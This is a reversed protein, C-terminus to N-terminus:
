RPRAYLDLIGGLRLAELPARTAASIWGSRDSRDTVHTEWALVEFGADRVLASLTAPTFFWLHHLAGYHKWSQSKLGMRSQLSKLRISLGGINPVGILLVGDDAVLSRARRLEVLPNQTHELVHNFRIAAFREEAFAIDSLKGEWVKADTQRVVDTVAVDTGAVEWGREEAFKLFAGAGCGVDLVSAPSAIVSRELRSLQRMFIRARTGDVNHHDDPHYSENYVADALQEFLPRPHQFELRCAPCRALHFGQFDVAFLDPTCQCLPCVVPERDPLAAEVVDRSQGFLSDAM